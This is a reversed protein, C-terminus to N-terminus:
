ANTDGDSAREENSTSPSESACEGALRRRRVEWAGHWLIRQFVTFRRLADYSKYIFATTLL